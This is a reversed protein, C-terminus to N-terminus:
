EGPPPGGGRPGRPGFGGGPPADGRRGPGRPGDFDDGPPPPPPGGGRRGDRDPGGRSRWDGWRRERDGLWGRFLDGSDQDGFNVSAYMARLVRNMEDEPLALLRRRDDDSIQDSRFFEELMEASPKFRSEFVWRGLIEVQTAVPLKALRQQTPQDVLNLLGTAMESFYFSYEPSKDSGSRQAIMMIAFKEFGDATGRSAIGDLLAQAPKPLTEKLRAYNAVITDQALLTPIGERLRQANEPSLEMLGRRDAQKALEAVRQLRADTDLARLGAQDAASLSSALNAYVLMSQWLKPAEDSSAIQQHLDELAARREANMAEFRSTKAALNYRQDSPLNAVYEARDAYSAGALTALQDVRTTLSEDIGAGFESPLAAPLQRLFDLSLSQNYADLEVVVPLNGYLARNPNPAIFRSFVFGAVGAAVALAVWKLTQSRRRAPLLQTQEVV